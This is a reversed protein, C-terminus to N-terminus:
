LAIGPETGRPARRRPSPVDTSLEITRSEGAQWFTIAVAEGEATTRVLELFEMPTEPTGDNVRTILAGAALGAARAEGTAESVLVGARDPLELAARLDANLTNVTIGVASVVEDELGEYEIARAVELVKPAVLIAAGARVALALADSPRSDVHLPVEAGTATIELMGHFTSNRLDDIFVRRLSGGLAEIVDGLLDHTMPRAMEMGRLARSIAAAEAPGIFIPVVENAHPERLLVVPSGNVAVAVTAIEVEVMAEPETALPREGAASATTALVSLLLSLAMGLDIGRCRYRAAVM